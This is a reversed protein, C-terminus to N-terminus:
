QGKLQRTFTASWTDNGLFISMFALKAGPYSLTCTKQGNRWFGVRDPGDSVALYSDGKSVTQFCRELLDRPPAPNGQRAMEDLTSKVLAKQGLTKRYTLHLGIEREWSFAAGQPTFLRADYIPVGFYRFTASGKHQADTLSQSIPSAEAGTAALLIAACFADSIRRRLSLRTTQLFAM